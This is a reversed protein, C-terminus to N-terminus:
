RYNSPRLQKYILVAIVIIIILVIVSLCSLLCIKNQFAFLPIISRLVCCANLVLFNTQSPLSDSKSWNLDSPKQLFIGRKGPFPDFWISNLKLTCFGLSRQKTKTKSTELSRNIQRLFCSSQKWLFSCWVPASVTESFERQLDFYGWFTM